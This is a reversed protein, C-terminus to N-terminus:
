KADWHSKRLFEQVPLLDLLLDVAAAFLYFFLFSLCFIFYSFIQLCQHPQKFIKIQTCAKAFSEYFTFSTFFPMSQQQLLKAWIWASFILFTYFLHTKALFSWTDITLIYLSYDILGKKLCCRPEKNYNLQRQTWVM